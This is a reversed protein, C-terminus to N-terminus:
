IHEATLQVESCSSPVEGNEDRYQYLYFLQPANGHYWHCVIRNDTYYDGLLRFSFFSFFLVYGVLGGM